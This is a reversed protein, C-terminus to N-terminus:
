DVGLSKPGDGHCSAAQHYNLLRKAIWEAAESRQTMGRGHLIDQFILEIQRIEDLTITM